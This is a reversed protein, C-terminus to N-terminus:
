EEPVGFGGYLTLQFIVALSILIISNVLLITLLGGRMVFSKMHYFEDEEELEYIYEEEEEFDEDDEYQEEDIEEIDPDKDYQYEDEEDDLFDHKAKAAKEAKQEKIYQKYIRSKKSERRLMRYVFVNRYLMDGVVVLGFVCMGIIAIIATPNINESFGVYHDVLIIIGAIILAPAIMLIIRLWKPLKVLPQFRDDDKFKIKLEEETLEENNENLTEENVTENENTTM